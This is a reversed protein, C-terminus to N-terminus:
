SKPPQANPEPKVENKAGIETGKRIYQGLQVRFRKDGTKLILSRAEVSEIEGELAGIKVSDGASVHLTEGTPKVYIWAQLGKPGSVAASFRAEESEDFKPPKPPERRDAPPTPPKPPTYATALDRDGLSKKYADLSALKLRKSNGEPLKDVAVAGKMSLAEVDLTITFVPSGAPRSLQVRNIQHLQPSHYFEYLMTVVSSLSGTGVLHYAIPKYAASTGTTPLLTIDTATIGSEKAKGLLWAKYLSLAKEYNAPLAREQWAEIQSVAKRGLNLKRNADDLQGQATQLDIQRANLTKAYKGYFYNGGWLAALAVVALALLRERQNM